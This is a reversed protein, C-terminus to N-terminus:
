SVGMSHLYLELQRVRNTLTDNEAVLKANHQQELVHTYLLTTYAEIHKLREKEQIQMLQDMQKQLSEYKVKWDIYVSDVNSTTKKEDRTFHDMPSSSFYSDSDQSEVNPLTTNNNNDLQSCHLTTPFTPLPPAPVSKTLPSPHPTPTSSRITLNSNMAVDSDLDPLPLMESFEKKESRTSLDIYTMGTSPFYVKRAKYPRPPPQNQPILQYRSILSAPLNSKIVASLDDNRAARERQASKATNAQQEFTPHPQQQSQQPWHAM